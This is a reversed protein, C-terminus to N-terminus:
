KTSNPPSKGWELLGYGRYTGIRMRNVLYHAKVLSAFLKNTDGVGNNKGLESAIQDRTLPHEKNLLIKRIQRAKEKEGDTFTKIEALISEAIVDPSDEKLEPAATGPTNQDASSPIPVPPCDDIVRFGDDPVPPADDQLVGVMGEAALSARIEAQDYQYALRKEIDHAYRIAKLLLGTLPYPITAPHIEYYLTLVRNLEDFDHEFILRDETNLSETSEIVMEQNSCEFSMQLDPNQRLLLKIVTKLLIERESENLREDIEWFPKEVCGDWRKDIHVLYNNAM